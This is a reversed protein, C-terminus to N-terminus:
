IDETKTLEMFKKSNRLLEMIRNWDPIKRLDLSNLAETHVTEMSFYNLTKLLLLSPNFAVHILKSLPKKYKVCFDRINLFDKDPNLTLVNNNDDIFAYVSKSAPHCLECLESWCHYFSPLGDRSLDNIYQTATKAIHSDPVVNRANINIYRAHTFSILVKELETSECYVDKELHLCEEIDKHYQAITKSVRKLADYSDTASEILGRMNAAFSFFNEEKISNLVGNAWRQNRLLSTSAAWHCRMLMECWYISTASKVDEERIKAFVDEKIFFYSYNVNNLSSCITNILEIEVEHEKGYPFVENKLVM